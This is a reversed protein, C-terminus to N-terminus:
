GSLLCFRRWLLPATFCALVHLYQPEDVVAVEPVSMSVGILLKSPFFYCNLFLVDMHFERLRSEYQM